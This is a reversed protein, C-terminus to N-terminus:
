RRRTRQMEHPEEPGFTGVIGHGGAKVARAVKEVYAVRLNAMRRSFISCPATTGSTM